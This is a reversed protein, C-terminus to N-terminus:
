ALRERESYKDLRVTCIFMGLGPIFLKPSAQYVFEVVSRMDFTHM